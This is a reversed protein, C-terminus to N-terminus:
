GFNQSSVCETIERFSREFPTTKETEEHGTEFHTLFRPQYDNGQRHAHHPPLIPKWQLNTSKRDCSGKKPSGILNLTPCPKV